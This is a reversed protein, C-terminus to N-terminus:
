ITNENNRRQKIERRFLTLERKAEILKDIGTVTSPKVGTREFLDAMVMEDSLFLRHYQDIKRTGKRPKCKRKVKPKYKGRSSFELAQKSTCTRCRNSLGSLMEPNVPFDSVPKDFNCYPCVKNGGIFLTIEAREKGEARYKRKKEMTEPKSMATERYRLRRLKFCDNCVRTRKVIESLEKELKCDVCVLTKVQAKDVGLKIRISTLWDEVVEKSKSTRSYTKGECTIQTTYSGRATLHVKSRRTFIRTGSVISM